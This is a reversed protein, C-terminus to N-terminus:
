APVKRQTAADSTVREYVCIRFAYENRENQPFADERVLHWQQMDVSPFTVEGDVEADVYTIHLVDALHLFMRYILGGGSIHLNDADPEVRMAQDVDHVVVAGDLVLDQQRTMVINTRGPLPKGIADWTKRGMVIPSGMTVNKFYLLDDRLSWLM